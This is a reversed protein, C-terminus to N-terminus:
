LPRNALTEIAPGTVREIIWESLPIAGLSEYFDRAPENWNLVAWELRGCERDRAIRALQIM